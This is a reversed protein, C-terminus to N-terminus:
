GHVVQHRTVVLSAGVVAHARQPGVLETDTVVLDNGVDIRNRLLRTLEQLDDVEVQGPLLVRNGAGNLPEFSQVLVSGSAGGGSPTLAREHVHRTHVHREVRAHETVAHGLEAVLQFAQDGRVNGRLAQDPLVDGVQHRPWELHCAGERLGDKILHWGLRNGGEESTILSPFRCGGVLVGQGAQQENLQQAPLERGRHPPNFGLVEHEGGNFVAPQADLTEDLDAQPCGRRQCTQTLLCQLEILEGTRGRGGEVDM